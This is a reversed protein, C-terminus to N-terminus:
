EEGFKYRARIGFIRPDPLTGFFHSVGLGATFGLESVQRAFDPGSGGSRITDDDFVNDVYAIVEYKPHVVGVRLDVLWYSDFNLGGDLDLSREDQWKANVETLLDLGDDTLPREYRASMAVAHKPSRELQNGKYNVRCAVTAARDGSGTGFPRFLAAFEAQTLGSTDIVDGNDDKYILQCDKGQHGYYALRQVSTLDDIYDGFESDLYSYALNLNLGELFDPYWSLELEAGKAEAPVNIVRPQSVGDVIVQTGQQKDTYDNYFLAVNTVLPGGVDFTNKSGLEWVTLKEADFLENVLFTASGGATLQNIGGPKQAKALSLYILSDDTPQWNLTAKPTSFHSSVTGELLRITDTGGVPSGPIPESSILKNYACVANFREAPDPNDLDEELFAAGITLASALNTCTSQNPKELRFSESVFRTELDLSWEEAFEWSFTGYFSWHRTDARWPAAVQEAYVDRYRQQWGIRTNRTPEQVIDATAGDCLGTQYGIEVGDPTIVKTQPLCAIIANKDELKRTEDWFLVGLTYQMSGDLNSAFRLEQSFQDVHSKVNAIQGAILQDARRGSAYGPTDPFSEIREGGFPAYKYDPDAQWDQDYNDTSNFNTRGTYSTITGGPLDFTSILSLRFTELHTGPFDEGTLPNESHTVVRGKASGFTTPLCFGPTAPGGDNYGEPCYQGFDLMGTSSVRAAFGLGNLQNALDIGNNLMNERHQLMGAPYRMLTVGEADQWGGGIRINALPDYDETSWETRAKLKIVENPKWVGTLAAGSGSSGGVDNGSMENIYHGGQDFTFGTVRLGLTDSLPGGIAGDLQRFGNQAFDIRSVANFVDGPEKTIYNFAGGFAARGYLASQPGKIVEIREVDTLLRRNALLGSGAVILNETTVDISDVLFAVNSRGRSNSLGRITVRTDAPGFGRDFQVSPNGRVIDSLDAVGQRSIQEATIATVAIPVDQLNEEKKRTTVVIEDIQSLGTVPWAAVVAALMAARRHCQNM